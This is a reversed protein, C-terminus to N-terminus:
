KMRAAESLEERDQTKLLKVTHPVQHRAIIKKTDINTLTQLMRSGLIQHRKTVEPFNRAVIEEFIAETRKRQLRELLGQERTVVFQEQFIYM